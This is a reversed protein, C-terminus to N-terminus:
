FKSKLKSMLFVMTLAIPIIMAQTVQDQQFFAPSIKIVFTFLSGLLVYAWLVRLLRAAFFRKKINKSFGFILGLPIAALLLPNVFVININDYTYDHDTFFMLFFLMSGTIGFLFGFFSNVSGLFVKFGNRRGWLLYFLLILECFLLSVLLVGPWPNVPVDRVIPRGVSSFVTEVSSVLQREIGYQDIYRFDGIRRALESPLFMEDWVTIPKDINQGMWFNLAWDIFPNFWTHRRVHQRLTFRGPMQGFEDKFQGGLAM